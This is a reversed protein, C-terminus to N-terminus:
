RRVKSREDTSSKNTNNTNQLSLAVGYSGTMSIAQPAVKKLVSKALVKEGIREVEEVSKGDLEVLRNVAGKTIGSSDFVIIPTKSQFGGGKQDNVDILASYGLEKLKNYFMRSEPTDKGVLMTNFSNYDDDTYWLFEVSEERLQKYIKEAQKNSPYKVSTTVVSQVDYTPLVERKSVSSKKDEISRQSPLAKRYLETDGKKFSAYFKRGYDLNDSTMITHLVTGAELVGGMYDQGIKQYAMYGLGAGLIAASVGLAIKRKKSLSDIKRKVAKRPHPIYEKRVGWKMGKIGYHTLSSRNQNVM